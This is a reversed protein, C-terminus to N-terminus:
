KVDPTVIIINFLFVEGGQKVRTGKMWEDKGEVFGDPQVPEATAISATPAGAIGMMLQEFVLGAKKKIM